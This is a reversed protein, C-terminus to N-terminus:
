RVFTLVEVSWILGRCVNWIGRVCCTCKEVGPLLFGIAERMMCAM